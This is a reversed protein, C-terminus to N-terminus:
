LVWCIATTRCPLSIVSRYIVRVTKCGPRDAPGGPIGAGEPRGANQVLCAAQPHVEVTGLAGLRQKALGQNRETVNSDALSDEGGDDAAVVAGTQRAEISAVLSSDFQGRRELRQLGFEAGFVDPGSEGM